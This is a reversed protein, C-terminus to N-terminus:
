RVSPQSRLRLDKSRTKTGHGLLSNPLRTIEATESQHSLGHIM